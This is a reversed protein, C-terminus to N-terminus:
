KNVLIKHTTQTGDTLKVKLVYMGASMTKVDIGSNSALIAPSSKYVELGSLNMISIEQLQANSLENGDKDQVFIKDVVPNPYLVTKVGPDGTQVSRINSYAYSGDRDIMKLRYYNRGSLPSIDTFHYTLLGSNEGSSLETGIAIWQKADSSRHIEFRDSNHQQSTSWSLKVNNETKRAAFSALTVPLSTMCTNAPDIEADTSFEDIDLSYTLTTAPNFYHYNRYDIIIKIVGGGASQDITSSLTLTSGVNASTILHYETFEGCNVQIYLQQDSPLDVANVKVKFSVLDGDQGLAPSILTQTSNAGTWVPIEISEEVRLSASGSISSGTNLSLRSNSGLSQATPAAVRATGFYQSSYESQWCALSAESLNTKDFNETVQANATFATTFLSAILLLKVKM